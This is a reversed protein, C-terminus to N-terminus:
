GKEFSHESFEYLKNELISFEQISMDLFKDLEFYDEFNEDLVYKKYFLEFIRNKRKM